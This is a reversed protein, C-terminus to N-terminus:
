MTVATLGQAITDHLERAIRNRETLTASLRAQAYLRANEEALATAADRQRALDAALRDAHERARRQEVAIRTFARMFLLLAAYVSLPILVSQISREGSLVIGAALLMLYFMAVLTPRPPAQSILAQIYPITIVVPQIVSDGSIAILGM